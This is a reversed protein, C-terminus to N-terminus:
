PSVACFQLTPGNKAGTIHEKLDYNRDKDMGTAIRWELSWLVVALTIMLEATAFSKGICSRPGRSFPMFAALASDRAQGVPENQAYQGQQLLWREPRYTFPEPYHIPNHHMSWIGVGVDYGKPIHVGGVFVGDAQAERWLSSGVPPSLRMAENICASLFKCASMKAGLSIDEGRAFHSKIEMRARQQYEPHKALYFLVAAISTSTTDVGAIILTTSEAAIEDPSLGMKTAPDQATEMFSFVDKLPLHENRVLKMRDRVLRSAFPLFVTRAAIAAPFFLQHVKWSRIAPYQWLVSMRVNSDLIAEIAQRHDAKGLMDYDASFVIRTMLDSTLYDCYRAINFPVSWKENEDERPLDLFVQAFKWVKELMHPQYATINEDSLAQSLVRRRRGHLQKDRLTLINPAKHVLADYTRSKLMKASHSYVDSVAEASNVLLRDPAYRVISGYRKHCMGMDIHINGTWAQYASYFNSVKALFPGPYQAYPHFLLRYICLGFLYALVGPVALGPVVWLRSFLLLIM